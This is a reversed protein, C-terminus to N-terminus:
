MLIKKMGRRELVVLPQLKEYLQRVETPDGIGDLTVTRTATGEYYTVRLSATNTLYTMPTRVFSVQFIDYYWIVLMSRNLVGRHLDMRREYFDFTNMKSQLSVAIWAIWAYVLVAVGVWLQVEGYDSDNGTGVCGVVLGFLTAVLAAPALHRSRTHTSTLRSGVDVIGHEDIDNALTRTTTPAPVVPGPWVAAADLPDDIVTAQPGVGPEAIPGPEAPPPAATNVREECERLRTWGDESHHRLLAQRYAAAAEAFRKQAQRAVGLRHAALHHEPQAAVVVALQEEAAPWQELDGLCVGLAYRLALDDPHDLIAAALVERAENPRGSRYLGLARDFPPEAPPSPEESVTNM